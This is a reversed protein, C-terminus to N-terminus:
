TERGPPGSWNKGSYEDNGGYEVRVYRLIGSNDCDDDGCYVGNDCDGLCTEGELCNACNAVARGNIFIGSWAGPCMTGPQQNSTFIIPAERTGLAEIRGGMEVILASGSTGFVVVGPDITLTAGSLIFVKERLKYNYNATLHLNEAYSGDLHLIPKEYDIDSRPIQTEPDIGNDLYYTWGATWDEDWEAPPLAGRYSVTYDILDSCDGTCTHCSDSELRRDILVVADNTGVAISTISPVWDPHLRNLPDGLLPPLSDNYVFYDWMLDCADWPIGSNVDCPGEVNGFLINGDFTHQGDAQSQSLLIVILLLPKVMARHISQKVKVEGM